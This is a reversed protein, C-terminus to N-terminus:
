SPEGRDKLMSQDVTKSRVKGELKSKELMLVEFLNEHHYTTVIWGPTWDGNSRLVFVKKCKKLDLTGGDMTHLVENEEDLYTDGPGDELAFAENDSM